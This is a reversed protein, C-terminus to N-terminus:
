DSCRRRGSRCSARGGAPPTSCRTPLTVRNDVTLQHATGNVTLTVATETDM